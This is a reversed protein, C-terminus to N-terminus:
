SFQTHTSVKPRYLADSIPKLKKWVRVAFIFLKFKEEIFNYIYSLKDQVLYVPIFNLPGSNFYQHNNYFFYDLM